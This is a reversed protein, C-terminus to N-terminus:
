KCLQCADPSNLFSLTLYSSSFKSHKEQSLKTALNEFGSWKLKPGYFGFYGMIVPSWIYLFLGSAHLFVLQIPVNGNELRYSVFAYYVNITQFGLSKKTLCWSHLNLYLISVIFMKFQWPYSWCKLSIDVHKQM